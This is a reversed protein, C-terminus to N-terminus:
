AGRDRRARVGEEPATCELSTLALMTQSILEIPRVELYFHEIAQENKNDIIYVFEYVRWRRLYLRGREWDYTAAEAKYVDRM